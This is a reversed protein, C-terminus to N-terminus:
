QIKQGTLNYLQNNHLIYIQGNILVKQANNSFYVSPTITATDDEPEINDSDSATVLVEGEDGKQYIRVWDIYMSRPGAALATIQNIDWIAPFNGGVALNLLIFNPKHFYTGPAKTEHSPDISIEYYPEV